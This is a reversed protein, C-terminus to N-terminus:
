GSRSPPTRPRSTKPRLIRSSQPSRRPTKPKPPSRKEPTQPKKAPEPQEVDQPNQARELLKQFEDGSSSESKGGVSPVQQLTTQLMTLLGNQLQEM